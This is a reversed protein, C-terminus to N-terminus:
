TIQLMLVWISHKNLAVMSNTILSLSHQDTNEIGFVFNMPESIQTHIVWSSYLYLHFTEDGLKSIFYECPTGYGPIEWPTFFNSWSLYQNIVFQRVVGQHKLPSSYPSPDKCDLTSSNVEHWVFTYTKNHVEIWLSQNLQCPQCQCHISWSIM